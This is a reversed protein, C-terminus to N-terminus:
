NEMLKLRWWRRGDQLDKVPLIRLILLSRSEVMREKRITRMMMRGFQLAGGDRNEKRKKEDRM